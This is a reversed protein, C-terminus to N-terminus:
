WEPVEAKFERELENLQQAIETREQLLQLRVEESVLKGKELELNIRDMRERLESPTMEFINM